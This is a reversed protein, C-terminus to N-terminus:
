RFDLDLETKDRVFKVIEERFEKNNVYIRNLHKHGKRNLTGM